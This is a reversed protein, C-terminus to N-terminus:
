DIPASLQGHFQLEGRRWARKLLDIFKGRFVRSLVRVPLLHRPGNDAAVGVSGEPKEKATAIDSKVRLNRIGTILEFAVDGVRSCQWRVLRWCRFM